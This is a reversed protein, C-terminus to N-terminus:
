KPSKSRAKAAIENVGKVIEQRVASLVANKSELLAPRIYQDGEWKRTGYEVFVSYFPDLERKRGSGNDPTLVSAKKGLHMVTHGIEWRRLKKDYARVKAARVVMTESLLGSDGIPVGAQAKALVVKAGARTGKRIAKKQLKTELTALLNDVEPFGTTIIAKKRGVKAM